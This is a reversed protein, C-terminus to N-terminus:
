EDSRFPSPAMRDESAMAEAQAPPASQGNDRYIIFHPQRNVDTRYSNKFVTVRLKQGGVEIEGSMYEAGGRSERQWLAGIKDESKPM